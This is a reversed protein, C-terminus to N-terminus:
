SRSSSKITPLDVITFAPLAPEIVVVVVYSTFGVVPSTVSDPLVETVSSIISFTTFTPVFGVTVTSVRGILM